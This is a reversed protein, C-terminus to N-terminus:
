RLRFVIPQRKYSKVKRGEQTAASWKPSKIILRKAEDDLTYEVSKYLDIEEINGGTDVVFQVVVMGQTDNKMARDPYRLNQQLYRVWMDVGGRFESEKYDREVQKMSDTKTKNISDRKVLDHVAKLRGNEFEKEKYIRGTDNAFYWNGHALNDRFSCISDVFGTPKYFVWTGHAIKNEADKYVEKSIMPGFLNYTHVEYCTDNIKRIRSFYTASDLNSINKWNADYAFYKDPTNNKQGQACLSIAM